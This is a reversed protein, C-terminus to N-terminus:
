LYHCHALGFQCQWSVRKALHEVVSHRLEKHSINLKKKLELQDALSYFMCNGTKDKDVITLGKESAREELRLLQKELNHEERKAVIQM